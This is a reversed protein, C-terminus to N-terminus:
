GFWHRFIANRWWNAYSADKDSLMPIRIEPMEVSPYTGVPCNEFGGASMYFYVKLYPVDEQLYGTKVVLQYRNPNNPYSRIEVPYTRTEGTRKDWISAHVDTIQDSNVEGDGDYVFRVQGYYATETWTRSHRLMYSLEGRGIEVGSYKDLFSSPHSLEEECTELGLEEILTDTSSYLNTGLGLRDGPIQVGMAALTTPFMDMTSFTRTRAPNSPQAAGNIIATYTKRQYDDPVNECFDVDMTPHDGEIVITTNPYFDQQQIWTIFDNVQRSSCAMANAYQEGFEDVCLECEYGDEFHTDVTLLTLNFPQGTSALETLTDKAMPFLKADEFGWFVHYGQPIVGTRQAYKYDRMEYNGHDTFYLERGGFEADSGIALVQRYGENELIDGLVTIDSFFSDQDNMKNGNVAVKLPLGSTQGFMAGMTWNTGPLCIGGNLKGSSGAFRENALSLQTLEPIVNREFAGGNAADAYTDEMSELYIYILNRKQEPFVLDVSDPDVYHDGIFDHGNESSKMLYSVVGTKEDLDNVALWLMISAVLAFFVAAGVQVIMNKRFFVLVAIIIAVIILEIVGWPIIYGWIMDGNTGTLPTNLHYIIEDASLDSWTLLLWKETFFLVVGTIAVVTCFVVAFYRLVRHRMTGKGGRYMPLPKAAVEEKSADQSIDQPADHGTDKPKKSFPGM